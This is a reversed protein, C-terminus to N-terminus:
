SINLRSLILQELKKLDKCIHVFSTDPFTIGDLLLHQLNVLRDLCKIDWEIKCSLSFTTISTTCSTIFSTLGTGTLGHCHLLEVEELEHQTTLQQLFEDTANCTDIRLVKLSNGKFM